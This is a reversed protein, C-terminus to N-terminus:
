TAYFLEGTPPCYTLGVVAEGDVFRSISTSWDVLGRACFTTGDIPDITWLTGAPVGRSEEAVISEGPFDSRIREKLFEEVAKDAETVTGYGITKEVEVLTVGKTQYDLALVGAQSIATKAAALVRDDDM